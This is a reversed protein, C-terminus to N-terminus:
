FLTFFTSIRFLDDHCRRSIKTHSPMLSVVIQQILVSLYKRNIRSTSTQRTPYTTSEDVWGGMWGDLGWVRGSPRNVIKL